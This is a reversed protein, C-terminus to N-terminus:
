KGIGMVVICTVYAKYITHPLSECDSKPSGDWISAAISVPLTYRRWRSNLVSELTGAVGLGVVFRRAVMISFTISGRIEYFSGWERNAGGCGYVYVSLTHSLARKPLFVLYKWLQRQPDPLSSPGMWVFAQSAVIVVILYM